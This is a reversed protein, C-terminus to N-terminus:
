QIKELHNVQEEQKSRSPDPWLIENNPTVYLKNWYIQVVVWCIAYYKYLDLSNWRLICVVWRANKVDFRHRFIRVNKLAKEIDFNWRRNSTSIEIKIRRWFYRSFANFIEVGIWRQFKAKGAPFTTISNFPGYYHASPRVTQELLNDTVSLDSWTALQYPNFNLWILRWRVDFLM